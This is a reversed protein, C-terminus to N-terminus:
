LVIRKEHGVRAEPDVLIKFGAERARLCFAVDEMTFDVMDGIKKEIPRFWPYELKEFVGKKVLMFGMGTYAVEILTEGREGRSLPQPLPRTLDQMTMFKFHKNEKFFEEDWERVTALSKGDEMLYVGSVIDTNHGLLRMFQQPTFLIDSDIWMIFDYDLKGDFPKQDKGRSVDAGLCMNRVFYINCSERRSLVPRIGHSLCYAVLDTWRELFKGSFSNGPLCFVVTLPKNQM